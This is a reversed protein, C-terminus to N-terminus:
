VAYVETENTKTTLPLLLPVEKHAPATLKQYRKEIASFHEGRSNDRPRNAKKRPKVRTDFKKPNEQIKLIM